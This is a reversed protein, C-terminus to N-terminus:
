RLLTEYDRILADCQEFAEHFDADELGFQKYWHVYAQVHFQRRARQLLHRATPLFHGNNVCLTASTSARLTPFPAASSYAITTNSTTPTTSRWRVAPFAADVSAGLQRTFRNAEATPPSFGRVVMTSALTAHEARPFSQTTQRVLRELLSLSADFDASRQHQLSLSSSQAVIPAHFLAMSAATSATSSQRKRGTTGDVGRDRWVGSRVDLMKAAPMPYVDHLLKGFDFPRSAGAATTPFLLGALDAAALSNLDALTVRQEGDVAAGSELRAAKWHTATRLLEDNDKYIVADVVERLCRLTLIANYNQLPSDGRSCSPAVSAAVVYAKPYVDRLRELVRCGLGSGTGGGLAHTVVTGQYCDLTELERQLSAMALEVLEEGEQTPRSSSAGRALRLAYGRAWNNGRGSQEVHIHAPQFASSSCVSRVVKPESDVLICRAAGEDPHYLHSSQSPPAPSSAAALRWYAAGLQIGCQGVHM